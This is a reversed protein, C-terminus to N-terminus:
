MRQMVRVSNDDKLKEILVLSDKIAKIGDNSLLRACQVYENFNISDSGTRGFLILDASVNLIKCIKLINKTTLGHSANELKVYTYYSMKLLAAMEKQTLGKASRLAQLREAIAGQEKLDDINRM